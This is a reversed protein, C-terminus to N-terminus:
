QLRSSDEINTDPMKLGSRVLTYAVCIRDIAMPPDGMDQGSRRFLVRGGAWVMYLSPAERDDPGQPDRRGGTRYITNNKKFGFLLWTLDVSTSIHGRFRLFRIVVWGRIEATGRRRQRTHMNPRTGGKARAAKLSQFDERGRWSTSYRLTPEPLAFLFLHDFWQDNCVWMVLVVLIVL